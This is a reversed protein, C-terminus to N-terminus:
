TREEWTLYIPEERRANYLLRASFQHNQTSIRQPTFIFYSPLASMISQRGVVASRRLLAVCVFVPNKSFFGAETFYSTRLFLTRTEKTSRVEYKPIVFSLCARFEDNTM